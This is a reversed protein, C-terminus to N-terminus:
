DRVLRAKLFVKAQGEESRLREVGEVHLVTKGEEESFWEKMRRETNLEADFPIWFLEDGRLFGRYLVENGAQTVRSYLLGNRLYTRAEVFTMGEGLEFATLARIEGGSRWYEAAAPFRTIERGGSDEVVVEGRWSGLYRELWGALDQPSTRAAAPPVLAVALLLIRIAPAM